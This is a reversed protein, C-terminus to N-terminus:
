VMEVFVLFCFFVEWWIRWFFRNRLFSVLLWVFYFWCELLIWRVFLIFLMLCYFFIRFFVKVLILLFIVFKDLVLFSVFCVRFVLFRGIFIVMLYRVRFFFCWFMLIICFLVLFWSCLVFKILIVNFNM